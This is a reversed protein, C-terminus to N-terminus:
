MAEMRMVECGLIIAVCNDGTGDPNMWSIEAPHVTLLSTQNGKM